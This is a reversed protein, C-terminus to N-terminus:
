PDKINYEKWTKIQLTGCADSPVMINMGTSEHEWLMEREGLIKSKIKCSSLFVFGTEWKKKIKIYLWSFSLSTFTICPSMSAVLFNLFFFLFFFETENARFIEPLEFKLWIPLAWLFHFLDRLVRKAELFTEELM